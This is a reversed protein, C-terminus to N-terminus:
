NQMSRSVIASKKKRDDKNPMPEIISYKQQPNKRSQTQDTM